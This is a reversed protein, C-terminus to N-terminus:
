LMCKLLRLVLEMPILELRNIIGRGVGCHDQRLWDVVRGVVEGRLVDLTSFFSSIGSCLSTLYYTWKSVTTVALENQLKLRRSLVEVLMDVFNYSCIETINGGNKISQM